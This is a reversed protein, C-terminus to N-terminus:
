LTEWSEKNGRREEMDLRMALRRLRRRLQRPELINKSIRCIEMNNQSFIFM